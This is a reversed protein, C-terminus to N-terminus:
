AAIRPSLIRAILNRDEIHQTAIVQPIGSGQAGPFFHRTLLFSAVLGVPCIILAIWPRPAQVQLFLDSAANALMAFAVAVLSVSICGIWVVVRRMWQRPSTM